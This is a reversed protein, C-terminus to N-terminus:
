VAHFPGKATCGQLQAQPAATARHCLAERPGPAPSGARSVLTISQALSTDQYHLHQQAPSWSPSTWSIGTLASSGVPSSAAIIHTRRPTPHRPTAAGLYEPQCPTFHPTSGLSPQVGWPILVGSSCLQTLGTHPVGLATPVMKTPSPHPSDGSTGMSMRSM